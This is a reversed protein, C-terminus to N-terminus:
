STELELFTPIIERICKTYNVWQILSIIGRWEEDLYLPGIFGGGPGEVKICIIKVNEFYNYRKQWKELFFNLFKSITTDRKDNKQFNEFNQFYTHRKQWKKLFSRFIEFISTDRKANKM